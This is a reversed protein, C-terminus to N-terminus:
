GTRRPLRYWSPFGFSGPLSQHPVTVPNWGGPETSKWWVIGTLCSAAVTSTRM